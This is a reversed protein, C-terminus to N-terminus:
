HVTKTIQELYEEAADCMECRSANKREIIEESLEMYFQSLNERGISAELFVDIISLSSFLFSVLDETSLIDGNEIFDSITETQKEYVKQYIIKEKKINM